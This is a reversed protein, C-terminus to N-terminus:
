NSLEEIKRKNWARFENWVQKKERRSLGKLMSNSAGSDTFGFFGNAIWLNYGKETHFLRYGNSAWGEDFMGKVKM